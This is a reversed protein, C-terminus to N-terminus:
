KVEAKLCEKCRYAKFADISDLGELARYFIDCFMDENHECIGCFIGDSFIKVIINTPIM